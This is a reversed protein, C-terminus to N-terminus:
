SQFIVSNETEIQKLIKEMFDDVDAVLDSITAESFINENFSWRYQLCGELIQAEITINNVNGLPHDADPKIGAVPSKDVVGYYQISMVKAQPTALYEILPGLKENIDKDDERNLM